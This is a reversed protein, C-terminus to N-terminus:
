LNATSIETIRQSIMNYEFYVTIEQRKYNVKERIIRRSMYLERKTVELFKISQSLKARMVVLGFILALIFVSLLWANGLVGLIQNLEMPGQKIYSILMNYMSIKEQIPGCFGASAKTYTLSVPIICLTITVLLLGYTLNSTRSASYPKEVPVCTNFLVVNYGLFTVLNCLFGVTSAIPSYCSGVWVVAQLYVIDVIFDTIDLARKAHYIMIYGFGYVIEYTVNLFTTILITRLLQGGVWNETCAPVCVGIQDATCLHWEGIDTSTCCNFGDPCKQTGVCTPNDTLGDLVTWSAWLVTYLRYFFTSINLVRLFYLKMVVVREYTAPRWEEITVLIKVLTPGANNLLAFLVPAGYKGLKENVVEEKSVLFWVATVTGGMLMPWLVFLSVFRKLTVINRRQLKLAKNNADAMLERLQMRIGRRLMGAAEFSTIHFDWSAFVLTSYPYLVSATAGSGEAGSSMIRGAIRALIAMLSVLISVIIILPYMYETKYWGTQEGPQYLYGGYYVWSKELGIGQMALTFNKQRFADAFEQWDYSQPPNVFFPVIIAVIWLVSLLGNLFFVWRLFAFTLMMSSGFNCEMGKLQKTWLWLGMKDSIGRPKKQRRNYRWRRITAIFGTGFYKLDVDEKGMSAIRYKAKAVASAVQNRHRNLTAADQDLFPFYRGVQPKVRAENQLRKVAAVVRRTRLFEQEVTLTAGGNAIMMHPSEFANANGHTTTSM